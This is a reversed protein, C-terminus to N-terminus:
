EANTVCHIVSLSQTHILCQTNSLTYCLKKFFFVMWHVSLNQKGLDTEVNSELLDPWAKCELVNCVIAQVYM